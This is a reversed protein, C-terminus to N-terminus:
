PTTASVCRTRLTRASAMSTSARRPPPLPAPSDKTRPDASPSTPPRSSTPFTRSSSRGPKRGTARTGLASTTAILTPNTTREKPHNTDVQKTNLSIPSPVSKSWPPHISPHLARSSPLLTCTRLNSHLSIYSNIHRPQRPQRLHQSTNPLSQM